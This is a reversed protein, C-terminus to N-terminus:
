EPKAGHDQDFSHIIRHCCLFIGTASLVAPILGCLTWLVKTFLNFRGFHLFALWYLTINDGSSGLMRFLANVLEPFCFYFGSIAWLSVFFLSWFGLASHMDWNFRAFHARWNVTLARRWHSIGPWWIIIGTLCLLTVCISGMGNVYRGAQGFLLNSHFDVLWEVISILFTKDLESRFVIMSGSLSMLLVYVGVGVGVWLHLQSFASRVRMTQPHQLWRQWVSM